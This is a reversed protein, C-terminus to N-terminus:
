KKNPEGYVTRERWMIKNKKKQFYNIRILIIIFIIIIIINVMTPPGLYNFAIIILIIKM